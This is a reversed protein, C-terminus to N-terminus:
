EAVGLIERLEARMRVAVQHEYRTWGPEAPDFNLLPDQRYWHDELCGFGLAALLILIMSAGLAKASSRACALAHVMRNGTMAMVPVVLLWLCFLGFMGCAAWFWASVPRAVSSNMDLEALWAQCFQPAGGHVAAWGIAPPFAVCAAVVLWHWKPVASFGFVGARKALRWRVLVMPLVLWLMGLAAFHLAPMMLNNGALSWQRGGLPTFRNWVWVYGAPLLVGAVLVWAWDGAGLLGEFRRGLVRAMRSVRFRFGWLSLLGAGLLVWLAFSFFRSAMEHEMFRGPRIDRETFRIGDALVLGKVAECTSRSFLCVVDRPSVERGDVTFKRKRAEARRAQIRAHIGKWRGASEGLGLSAAHKAIREAMVSAGGTLIVQELMTAAEPGSAHRLMASVDGELKLFGDVDRAEVLRAAEFEIPTFLEHYFIGLSLGTSLAAISDMGEVLNSHPLVRLRECLLKATYNECVPKRGAEHLWALAQDLKARDTVEFVEGIRAGGPAFTETTNTKQKVSDRAHVSAALYWYWANDPDLRGVVQWYDKPLERHKRVYKSVHEPYYERRDPHTEWLRMIRDADEEEAVDGLALMRDEPKLRAAVREILDEPMAGMGEQVFRVWQAHQWLSRAEMMWVVASVAILLGWLVWARSGRKRGDLEAWRVIASQGAQPDPKRVSELFGAAALRLEPNDALPLTAAEILPDAPVPPHDNGPM